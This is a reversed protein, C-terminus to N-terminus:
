KPIMTAADVATNAGWMGDALGILVKSLKDDPNEHLWKGTTIMGFTIVGARLGYLQLRSPNKTGWITSLECGSTHECRKTMEVDAVSFGAALGWGVWYLKGLGHRRTHIPRPENAPWQALESGTKRPPIVVHFDPPRIMTSSRAAETQAFTPLGLLAFALAITVTAWVRM